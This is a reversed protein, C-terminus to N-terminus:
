MQTTHAGNSGKRPRGRKKNGQSMVLKKMNIGLRRAEIEFRALLAPGEAEVFERQRKEIKEKLATLAENDLPDIDPLIMPNEGNRNDSTKDQTM